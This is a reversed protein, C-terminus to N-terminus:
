HRGDERRGALRGGGGAKKRQLCVGRRAPGGPGIGAAGGSSYSRYHHHAQGLPTLLCNGRGARGGGRGTGPSSLSYLHHALSHKVSTLTMLGAAYRWARPWQVTGGSGAHARIQPRPSNAGRGALDAAPACPRGPGIM